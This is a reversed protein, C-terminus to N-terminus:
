NDNKHHENFINFIKEVIGVIAEVELKEAIAILMIIEIIGIVMPGGWSQSNSFWFADFLIMVVMIWLFRENKNEKDQAIIKRQLETIEKDLNALNQDDSLEILDETNKDLM